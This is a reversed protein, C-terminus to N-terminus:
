LNIFYPKLKKKSHDFVRSHWYDKPPLSTDLKKRSPNFFFVKQM